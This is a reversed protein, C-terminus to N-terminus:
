RCTITVQRSGEFLIRGEKKATLTLTYNDPYDFKQKFEGRNGTFTVPKSDGYEWQYEVWDPQESCSLYLTVWYECDSGDIYEHNVTLDCYGDGGDKSEDEFPNDWDTCGTLCGCLVCIMLTFLLSRM